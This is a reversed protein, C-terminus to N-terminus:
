FEATRKLNLGFNRKKVEAVMWRLDSGNQVQGNYDQTKVPSLKQTMLRDERFVHTMYKADSRNNSKSLDILGDYAPVM